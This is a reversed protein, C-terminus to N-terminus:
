SEAVRVFVTGQQNASRPRRMVEGGNSNNSMSTNGEIASFSSPSGSEFLGVHDYNWESGSSGSGQWDFCVLDGPRPSNTVSLGNRANRADSVIYPVYDYADNSGAEKVTRWREASGGAQRYCWTVFMACWPGTEGYWDCYKVENSEPPSEKIGLQTIAKALAQERVTTQPAPPHAEDYAQDTLAVCQSDWAPEGAHTRGQPILVSRAFNFTKEGVNGTPTITGSWRQFAKMGAKNPNDEVGYAVADSWAEDWSDPDWPWFGCHAMARKLAVAFESKPSPEYAPAAGPPYLPGPFKGPEMPHGRPPTTPVAM